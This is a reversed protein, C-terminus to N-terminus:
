VVVNWNGDFVMLESDKNNSRFNLASVNSATMGCVRDENFLMYIRDSDCKHDFVKSDPCRCYKFFSDVDSFLKDTDKEKDYKHVEGNFSVYVYTLDEGYKLSFEQLPIEEVNVSVDTGDEWKTTVKRFVHLKGEKDKELVFVDDKYNFFLM